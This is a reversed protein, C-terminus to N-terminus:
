KMVLKFFGMFQPSKFMDILNKVIVTVDENKVDDISNGTIDSVTKYFIEEHTSLAFVFELILNLTMEENESEINAYKKTFTTFIILLGISDFILLPNQM